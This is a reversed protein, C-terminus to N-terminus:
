AAAGCGHLFLKACARALAAIAEHDPLPRQGLLRARQREMTMMGRLMGSVLALDDLKLAGRDRQRGLWTEIARSAPTIAAEYYSAAIEPFRGGETIALRYMGTADEGLTLGGYVTLLQVLADELPLAELADIDLALAFTEIRSAVVKRFLEAKNPVLRYMTKTSIGAKQAVTAMNVAAFGHTLFEDRAATIIIRLTEDDCRVQPRGRPRRAPAAEEQM